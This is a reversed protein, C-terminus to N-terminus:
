SAPEEKKLFSEGIASLKRVLEEAPDSYGSGKAYGRTESNQSLEALRADDSTFYWEGQLLRRASILDVEWKSSKQLKTEHCFIALYASLYDRPATFGCENCKHTRQSLPKKKKAGCLCTQSLATQQTNIKQCWGSANEAKRTLAGELASPAHQKISKGFM